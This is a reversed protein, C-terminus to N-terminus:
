SHGAAGWEKCPLPRRCRCIHNISMKIETLDGKSTIRSVNKQKSIALEKPVQEGPKLHGTQIKALIGTVIKQYLPEKKM